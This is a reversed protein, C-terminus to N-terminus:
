QKRARSPGTFSRDHHIEKNHPFTCIPGLHTRPGPPLLPRAPLAPESLGDTPMTSSSLRAPPATNAIATSQCHRPLPWDCGVLTTLTLTATPRWCPVAGAEFDLDLTGDISKVIAKTISTGHQVLVRAGVALDREALWCVTATLDRIPAPPADTAALVDGRSVDIDTNLRIVVSQGAVALDLPGDPTDIAEV